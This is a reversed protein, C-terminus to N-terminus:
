RTDYITHLEAIRARTVRELCGARVTPEVSGGAYLEAEAECNADRYKIWARQAIRLKESVADGPKGQLSAYLSNLETDAAKYAASMCQNIELQTMANECAPKSSANAQASTHRVALVLFIGLLGLIKTKSHM